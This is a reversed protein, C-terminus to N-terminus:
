KLEAGIKAGNSQLFSVIEKTYEKSKAYDLATKGNNDLINLDVGEELLLRFIEIRKDIDTGEIQSWYSLYLLPTQGDNNKKDVLAGNLILLKVIKYEREKVAKHLATNGQIDSLNVDAGNGILLKAFELRNFDKRRTKSFIVTRLPSGSDLNVDSNYQILLKMIEVDNSYWASHQLATVNRIKYGSRINVDAGNELLIKVMELDDHKRSYDSYVAEHLPTTGEKLGGIKNIDAGNELLLEVMKYSSKQVALILSTINNHNEFTKNVDEGNNILYQVKDYNNSSIADLLPVEGYNEDNIYSFIVVTSIIEITIPICFLIGLIIILISRRRVKGVKIKDKKRLVVGAVILIGGVFALLLFIFFFLLRTVVM